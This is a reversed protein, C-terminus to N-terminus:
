LTFTEPSLTKLGMKETLKALEPVTKLRLRSTMRAPHKEMTQRFLKIDSKKLETIPKDGIVEKLRKFYLRWEAETAPPTQRDELYDELLDSIRKQKNITERPDRSLGKLDPVKGHFSASKFKIVDLEVDVLMRALLKLTEDDAFLPPDRRALVDTAIDMMYKFDDTRIWDMAQNINRSINAIVEERTVGDRAKYEESIETAELAIDRWWKAIDVLDDNTIHV